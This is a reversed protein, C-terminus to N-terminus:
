MSLNIPVVITAAGGPPTLETQRIVGKICNVVAPPLTSQVKMDTVKGDKGFTVSDVKLTGAINPDTSLGANYCRRFGPRLGAIVREANSVPVSIPPAVPTTIDGIPGPPPGDDRPPTVVAVRAPTPETSSVDDATGMAGDCGASRVLTSAPTCQVQIPHGYGDTGLEISPMAQEDRLRTADPCGDNVMRWRTTATTMARVHEETTQKGSDCATSVPTPAPATQATPPPTAGGCAAVLSVVSSVLLARRLNAM